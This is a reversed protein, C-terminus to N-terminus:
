AGEWRVIGSTGPDILLPEQSKRSAIHLRVRVARNTSARVWAKGRPAVAAHLEIGPASIAACGQFVPPPALAMGAAAATPPPMFFKVVGPEDLRDIRVMVQGPGSPVSDIVVVLELVDEPKVALAPALGATSDGAARASDTPAASALASDQAPARPGASSAAGSDSAIAVQASDRPHIELCAVKIDPTPPPGGCAELAALAALALPLAVRPLTLARRV